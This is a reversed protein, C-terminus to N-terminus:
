NLKSYFIGALEYAIEFLIFYVFVWISFVGGVALAFIVLKMIFRYEFFLNIFKNETVKPITEHGIEDVLAAVVCILLIFLNINPIGFALCIIVFIIMCLVHHLGDVKFALLNGILIAIFIYDAGVDSIAALGCTLACLVSFVSASILDHKVDYCDDSIKMFFGSAFFLLALIIYNM